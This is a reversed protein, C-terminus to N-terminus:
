DTFDPSDGGLDIQHAVLHLTSRFCAAAESLRGDTTLQMALAYASAVLDVDDAAVSETTHATTSNSPSLTEQLQMVFQAIEPQKSELARKSYIPQSPDSDNVTAMVSTAPESIRSKDSYKSKHSQSESSSFANHQDLTIQSLKSKLANKDPSKTLKSSDSDAKPQKETEIMKPQKETEIMKPQKEPEIMKPQKETETKKEKRKLPRDEANRTVIEILELYVDEEFLNRKSRLKNFQGSFVLFHFLGSEDGSLCEEAIHYADSDNESVIRDALVSKKHSLGHSNILSLCEDYRSESLFLDFRRTPEKIFPIAVAGQNRSILYELPSLGPLQESQITELVGQQERVARRFKIEGTVLEIRSVANNLDVLWLFDPGTSLIKAYASASCLHGAGEYFYSILKTTAYVFVLESGFCLSSADVIEVDTSLAFRTELSGLDIARIAREGVCVLTNQMFVVKNVKFLLCVFNDFKNTYLKKGDKSVCVYVDDKSALFVVEEDFVRVKEDGRFLVCERIKYLEDQVFYAYGTEASVKNGTAMDFVDYCGDYQLLAREGSISFNDVLRLGRLVFEAEGKVVKFLKNNMCYYSVGNFVGAVMKPRNTYVVLGTDCGAALYDDKAAVCWFRGTGTISYNEKSNICLKCDEGTSYLVEDYKLLGTVNSEHSYISRHYELVENRYKWEKIERDDSGSFISNESVYICNVGRDHAEVSQYQILTPTLVSKKQEFLKECNWLGLTHDLSGTIIHTSDLFAAAMVYHHHGVSSCLLEGTYFNWVKITCDDSGSLIWPQTPHFDLARVYDVHGKLRVTVAKKNYDWIRIEKDDGATAFISGSPHMKVARISGAHENLGQETGYLYNHIYLTGCHNGAVLTPATPHFDVAKVRTSEKKNSIRLHKSLM